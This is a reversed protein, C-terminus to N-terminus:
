TITQHILGIFKCTYRNVILLIVMAYWQQFIWCKLINTRFRDIQNKQNENVYFNRFGITRSLSVTSQILLRCCICKTSQLLVHEVIEKGMLTPM